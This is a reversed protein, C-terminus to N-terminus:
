FLFNNALKAMDFIIKFQGFILITRLNVLNFLNPFSVLIENITKMSGVM